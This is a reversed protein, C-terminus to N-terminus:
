AFVDVDRSGQYLPRELLVSLCLANYPLTPQAPITHTFTEEHMHARRSAGGPDTHLQLTSTTRASFHQALFSVLMGAGGRWGDKSGDMRAQEVEDRVGEGRKGGRQCGVGRGRDREKWREEGGDRWTTWGGQGRRGKGGETM